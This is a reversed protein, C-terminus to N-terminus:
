TPKRIGKGDCNTCAQRGRGDCQPCKQTVTREGTGKCVACPITGGECLRNDCAMKKKGGCKDCTATVQIQQTFPGSRSGDVTKTIQGTGSCKNCLCQKTGHCTPCVKTGGECKDSNCPVVAEARGDGGCFVCAVAKEGICTPCMAATHEIAAALQNPVSRLGSSEPDQYQLCAQGAQNLVNLWQSKSFAADIEQALASQSSTDALPAAPTGKRTKRREHTIATSDNLSSGLKERLRKQESRSPANVLLAADLGLQLNPYRDDANAILEEALQANKVLKAYIAARDESQGPDAEREPLQSRANNNKAVESSEGSKNSTALENLKGELGKRSIRLPDLASGISEGAATLISEDVESIRRMEAVNRQQTLSGGIRDLNEATNRVLQLFEADTPRVAVGNRIASAVAPWDSRSLADRLTNSIYPMLAGDSLSDGAAGSLIMVWDRAASLDGRAVLGGVYASLSDRVNYALLRYSDAAGFKEAEILGQRYTQLEHVSLAKSGTELLERVRKARDIKGNLERAENSRPSMQVATAIAEHAGALNGRELEHQATWLLRNYDSQQSSSLLQISGYVVLVFVAAAVPILIALRQHRRAQRVATDAEEGECIHHQIDALLEHAQPTTLLIQLSDIRVKAAAFDKQQILSEIEDKAVRLQAKEKSECVRRRFAEEETPASELARRFDEAAQKFDGAKYCGVGSRVLVAAFQRRLRPLLSVTALAESNAPDLELIEKCANEVGAVNLDERAKSVGEWLAAIRNSRIQEKLKAIQGVAEQDDVHVKLLENWCDIADGYKDQSTFTTARVRLNALRELVRGVRALAEAADPFDPTLKAAAEFQRQAAEFAGANELELGKAMLIQVQQHARLDFGCGGCFTVDVRSERECRPCHMFLSSLDNGCGTCFKVDVPNARGCKGCATSLTALAVVQTDVADLGSYFEAVTQYRLERDRELGKLLVPRMADPINSERLYRPSDGTLAEYLTGALAYIDARHDVHKADRLQEPPAYDLTGVMAGTLTLDKETESQVLGFDALKPIDSRDLLINSPKIDRHIVGRAHAANLAKCLQKGIAVIKEAALPGDQKIAARLDKGEIYEMTIFYGEDDRDVDYVMVINHHNLSAIARAEQLFRTRAQPAACLENRIRKMAVIRGLRRDRVKYVAGMGGEGLKELVEYRSASQSRIGESGVETAAAGLTDDISLRLDDATVAVDLTDTSAYNRDLLDNTVKTM